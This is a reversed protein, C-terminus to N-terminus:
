QPRKERNEEETIKEVLARFVGAEYAGLAVGGQFIIAASVRKVMINATYITSQNVNYDATLEFSLRNSLDKGRVYPAVFSFTRSKNDSQIVATPGGTQKWSFDKVSEIDTSKILDQADLVVTACESVIDNFDGDNSKNTEESNKTIDEM